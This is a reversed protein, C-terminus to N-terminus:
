QVKLKKISIKEAEAPFSTKWFPKLTANASAIAPYNNLITPVDKKSRGILDSKLAVEDTKWLLLASGSVKFDIQTLPLLDAPVTGAFSIQLGEFADLEVTETETLSVKEEALARALDSKKFMIGYLNGRLNITTNNGTAASQPLDEYTVSSLSPFLIFDAPVEVQAKALLEDGLTTKLDAQAKTLDEPKVGKEMGVFGGTMPTKSRAYVTTFRPTGKLGPVTWDTLDTNYEVGPIDAYVVAEVNGNAPVTIPKAIRYIKGTPTEFRTNEVLRQEPTSTNYVIITGSSKRSVQSEGSATVSVGKDGSLKVVSYLLRDDGTKYAQYTENSFTLADSKPVYSLTADSFFSLLAFALLGVGVVTAGFVKRRKATRHHLYNELNQPIPREYAAQVSSAPPVAAPTSVVKIVDSPIIKPAPPPSPMKVIRSPAIDSTVPAAKTTSSKRRGEPIPINRISKRREPFIVDDVNKPM